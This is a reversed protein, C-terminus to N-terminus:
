RARIGCRAFSRGALNRRVAEAVAGNTVRPSFGRLTARAHPIAVALPIERAQIERPKWRGFFIHVAERLSQGERFSFADDDNGSSGRRPPSALVLAARYFYKKPM